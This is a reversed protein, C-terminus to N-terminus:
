ILCRGNPMIHCDRESEWMIRNYQWHEAAVKDGTEDPWALETLYMGCCNYRRMDYAECNVPDPAQCLDAM